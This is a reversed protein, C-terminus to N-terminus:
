FRFVACSVDGPHGIGDFSVLLMFLVGSLAYEIGEPTRNQRHDIM